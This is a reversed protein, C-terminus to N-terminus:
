IELRSELAQIQETLKRILRAKDLLNDSIECGSNVSPMKQNNDLRVDPSAIRSLRVSLLEIAKGLGELSFQIEDMAKPVLLERVPQSTTYGESIGM